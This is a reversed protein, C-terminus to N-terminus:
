SAKPAAVAQRQEARPGSVPNGWVSTILETPFLPSPRTGRQGSVKSDPEDRAHAHESGLAYGHYEVVYADLSSSTSKPDPLRHM